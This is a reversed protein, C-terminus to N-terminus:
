GPLYKLPNVPKGARRIEFHLMVRKSDTNGMTAIQQGAKVSQGEKVLLQQNHAYASLYEDNQKVIILNGYGHLGNSAYVVIGSAAAVIPEGAKGAIDIGKNLKDISFGKILKGHAPWVWIIKNNNKSMTTPLSSTKAANRNSDASNVAALQLKQGTRIRYDPPTINNQVAIQRYDLGYRWAISYLSDDAKVRYVAPAKQKQRWGEKITAGSDNTACGSLISFIIILLGLLRLM